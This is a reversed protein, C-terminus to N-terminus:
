RREGGIQRSVRDAEEDFGRRASFFVLFMLGGGLILSGAAGILLAAVGHFPLGERTNDWIQWATIGAASLLLLATAAIPLFRKM